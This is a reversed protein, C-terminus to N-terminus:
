NVNKNIIGLLVNKVGIFKTKQKTYNIMKISNITIIVM